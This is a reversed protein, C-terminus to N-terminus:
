DYVDQGESIHVISYGKAGKPLSRGGEHYPEILIAYAFERLMAMPPKRRPRTEESLVVPAFGKWIEIVRM